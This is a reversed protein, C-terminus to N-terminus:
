LNHLSPTWTKRKKTLPVKKGYEPQTYELEDEKSKTTDEEEESKNNNLEELDDDEETNQNNDVDEWTNNKM